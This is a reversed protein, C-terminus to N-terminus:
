YKDPLGLLQYSGAQNFFTLFLLVVIKIMEERSSNLKKFFLKPVKLCCSQYKAM